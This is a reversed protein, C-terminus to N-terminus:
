SSCVRFIDWFDDFILSSRGVIVGSLQDISHISKINTKNISGGYIIPSSTYQRILSIAKSIQFVDPISNTGISWVPEYAVYFKHDIPFSELCQSKIEAEINEQSKEGVCIIPIMGSNIVKTAKQSVLVSTESHFIRRESHGCIVYKCGMNKLMSASVDGTFSGNDRSSSDQAGVFLKDLGFELKYKYLEYLFVHPVCLCLNTSYVLSNINFSISKVFSQLCSLTGNMKWNAVVIDFFM